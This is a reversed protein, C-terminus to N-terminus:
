ENTFLEPQLDKLAAAQAKKLVELSLPIDLRKHQEVMEAITVVQVRPYSREYLDFKYVGAASAESKMGQTPPQLTLFVALEAGERTRDNNLKAVDGRGVNGSKVQFM